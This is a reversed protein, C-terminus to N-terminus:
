TSVSCIEHCRFLYVHEVRGKRGGIVIIWGAGTGGIVFSIDVSPNSKLPLTAKEKDKNLMFCILPGWEKVKSVYQHIKLSQATLMNCSPLRHEPHLKCSLLSDLQMVPPFALQMVPPSAVQMVPPFAVQMAPPFAVQMAPPFAVQM